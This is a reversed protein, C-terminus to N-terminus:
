YYGHGQKFSWAGCPTGYRDQIYGLGWRIQTVPNTAWDAGASSMKSGPLAQPIGYASSRPNDADVRWHSEGDYLPDLCEFEAQDFGFETLLAKAIIRPDEDSIDETRTMAQGAPQSLTALKASTTAARSDSRSVVDARAAAAEATAEVSQPDPSTQSQTLAMSPGAGLEPAFVGGWVAAATVAAAAGSLVFVSRLARRPAKSLNAPTALGRHKPVYKESSPM